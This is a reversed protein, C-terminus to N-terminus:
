SVLKPRIGKEICPPESGDYTLCCQVSAYKLKRHPENNVLSCVGSASCGTPSLKRKKTCPVSSIGSDDLKRNPAWDVDLEDDLLAPKGSAFLLM